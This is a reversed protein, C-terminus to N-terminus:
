LKFECDTYRCSRCKRINNHHKPEILALVILAFRSLNHKLFNEAEKTQTGRFIKITERTNRDKVNIVWVKEEHPIEFCEKPDLSGTESFRSNLYLMTQLKQDDYPEIKELYQATNGTFKSDEVFLRKECRLVKDARGYILIPVKANGIEIKTFFRTYIAELAFEVDRELDALEEKTIPVFKFHEKEYKEEEEHAKTGAITIETQPPKIGKLFHKIKFECYGMSDCFDSVSSIILPSGDPLKDIKIMTYPNRM